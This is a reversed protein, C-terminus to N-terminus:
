KNKSDIIITVPGDNEINVLMEAGFIGSSTPVGQNLKDNFKLYIDKSLDGSLANIYSPRNGDKTNAQLTFQSISLIEGKIDTISKNMIGADDDFVRLNLIKRVLYNLDDETDDKAIGVLIVFGKQIENIVKNNVSVSGKNCRQIVVKM